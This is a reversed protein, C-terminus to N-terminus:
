PDGQAQIEAARPDAVASVVYPIRYVGMEKAMHAIRRGYGIIGVRLM